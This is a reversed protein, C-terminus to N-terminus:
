QKQIAPENKNFGILYTAVAAVVLSIVCSIFTTRTNAM